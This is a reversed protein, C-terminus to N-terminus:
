AVSEPLGAERRNAVIEWRALQAYVADARRVLAAHCMAAGAGSAFVTCVPQGAAVWEGARPVDRVTEDDLWPRTDGVQVDHRAFVIAKGLATGLAATLPRAFLQEAPLEGSSCAAAHLGFMSRGYAHEVLEMSSSWRPNVEVAVPTNGRVIIDIGNLGVLGCEDTVARALAGARELLVPDCADLINGCYRYGDAGFAPEGILQRCVALPVARGGAAVFSVSAPWGELREQLYCGRPVRSGQRWLRVGSGGGSRLPKLLWGSRNPGNPDDPGDPDDPDDPGNPGNPSNVSMPAPVGRRRLAAALQHPDRVLRLVAPSNGWLMRGSALTRVAAPHNEFTSLYTVADCVMTRSARAASAATFRMGLDRPLSIARVGPHQDLDAFRDIAIVDFGARAASEAAARTSVGVIL